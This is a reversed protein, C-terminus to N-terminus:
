SLLTFTYPPSGGTVIMTGTYASGLAITNTAPCALVPPELDVAGSLYYQFDCLPNTVVRLTASSVSFIPLDFYPTTEVPAPLLSDTSLDFLVNTFSGRQLNGAGGSGAVYTMGNPTFVPGGSSDTTTTVAWTSTGDTPRYLYLFQNYGASGDYNNAWLFYLDNSVPDINARPFGVNDINDGGVLPKYTVTSPSNASPFTALGLSANIAATNAIIPFEWTDEGSNYCPVGCVEWGAANQTRNQWNYNTGLSNNSALITLYEHYTGYSESFYEQTWWIAINDNSEKHGTFQFISLDNASTSVSSIKTETGWATGSYVQFYLDLTQPGTTSAFIVVWDGNARHVLGFNDNAPAPGGGTVVTGWTESAFNFTQLNLTGGAASGYAAYALSGGSLPYYVQPQANDLFPSNATDLATFYPIGGPVPSIQKFVTLYQGLTGSVDRDAIVYTNTSYVIPPLGPSLGFSFQADTATGTGDGCVIYAASM